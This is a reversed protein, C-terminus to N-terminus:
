EQAKPKESPTVVPKDDTVAAATNSECVDKPTESGEQNVPPAEQPTAAARGATGVNPRVSFRSRRFMKVQFCM